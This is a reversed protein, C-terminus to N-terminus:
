NALLSRIRSEFASFPQAGVLLLGEVSSGSSSGIVFTPTGQVGISQAIARDSNIAADFKDSSMCARLVKEDLGAKVGIAAIGDVGGLSANNTLM